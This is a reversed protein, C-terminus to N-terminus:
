GIRDAYLSARDIAESGMEYIQYAPEREALVRREIAELVIENKSVGSREAAQALADLIYAKDKPIYVNLQM